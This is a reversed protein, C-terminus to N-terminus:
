ANCGPRNIPPAIVAQCSTGTYGDATFRGTSPNYYGPVVTLHANSGNNALVTALKGDLYTQVAAISTLTDAYSIYRALDLAATDAIAQAQRSGYVTFGIDVGTAGAWLLLVMSIATLVFAAGKEDDDRRRFLRKLM